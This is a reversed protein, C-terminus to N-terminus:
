LNRRLGEDGVQDVHADSRQLRRAQRCSGSQVPGLRHIIELADGSQPPHLAQREHQQERCRRQVDDRPGVLVGARCPTIDPGKGFGRHDARKGVPERHRCQEPMREADRNRVGCDDLVALILDTSREALEDFGVEHRAVDDAFSKGVRAAPPPETFPQGVRTVCGAGRTRRTIHDVTDDLHDVVRLHLFADLPDDLVPDAGCRDGRQEGRRDIERDLAAMVLSQQICDQRSQLTEEVVVPEREALAELLFRRPPNGSGNVIPDEGLDVVAQRAEQDIDAAFGRVFDPARDLSPDCRESIPEPVVLSHEGLALLELLFEESM